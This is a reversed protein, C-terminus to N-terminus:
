RTTSDIESSLLTPLQKQKLKKIVLLATKKAQQENEFGKAVALAPIDEQHIFLSDNVLINYGWGKQTHFLEYNIHQQQRRGYIIFIAVSIIIAASLVITNHKTMPTTPKM